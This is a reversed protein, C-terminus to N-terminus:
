RREGILVASEGMAAALERLCAGRQSETLNVCLVKHRVPREDLQPAYGVVKNQELTLFAPDRGQCQRYKAWHWAPPLARQSHTVGPYPYRKCGLSLLIGDLSKGRVRPSDLAFTAPRYEDAPQSLMRLFGAFTKAVLCVAGEPNGPENALPSVEAWNKLWVQGERPGHVFILLLDDRDVFGIPVSCRPLEDRYALAVHLVDVSRELDFAALDIGLLRDVHSSAQGETPHRWAFESPRPTGGNHQLLFHRYERPLRGADPCLLREVVCLQSERLPPGTDLFGVKGSRQVTANRSAKKEVRRLKKSM